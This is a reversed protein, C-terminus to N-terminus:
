TARKITGGKGAADRGEFIVVVRAGSERVWEGMKVLEEQLRLIEAHYAKGPLKSARDPGDVKVGKHAKTGDKDRKKSKKAHPTRDEASAATERPDPVTALDPNRSM